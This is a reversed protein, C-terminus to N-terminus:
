LPDDQEGIRATKEFAGYGLVIEKEPAFASAMSRIWGTDQLGAIPM